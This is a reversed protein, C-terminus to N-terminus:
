PGQCPLSIFPKSICGRSRFLLLTGMVPGLHSAEIPDAADSPDPGSGGHHWEHTITAGAPVNIVTKDYPIVLPNVGGNCQCICAYM